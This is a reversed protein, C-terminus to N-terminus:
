LFSFYCFTFLALPTLLTALALHFKPLSHDASHALPLAPRDTGIPNERSFKRQLNMPRAYLSRFTVSIPFLSNAFSSPVFSASVNTATTVYAMETKAKKQKKDEDMKSRSAKGSRGNGERESSENVNERIQRAEKEEYFPQLDGNPCDACQCKRQRANGVACRRLGNTPLFALAPLLFSHNSSRLDAHSICHTTRNRLLDRGWPHENRVLCYLLSDTCNRAKKRSRSCESSLEHWQACYTCKRIDPSPRFNLAFALLCISACPLSILM